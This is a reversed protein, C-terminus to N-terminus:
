PSGEESQLGWTVVGCRFRQTADCCFQDDFPLFPDLATLSLTLMNPGSVGLYGGDLRVHQVPLRTGNASEHLAAFGACTALLKACSKFMEAAHWKM